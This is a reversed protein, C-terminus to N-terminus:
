RKNSNNIMEIFSSTIIPDFHSGSQQAIYDLAEQNSWAAKYPRESTLADYVDVVAMIRAELPILENSLGVPYGSGDWREHHTLAYEALNSYLDAAKLIQYGAETHTKMIEYEEKTPM